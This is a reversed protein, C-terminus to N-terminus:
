KFSTVFHNFWFSSLRIHQRFYNKNFIIVSGDGIRMLNETRDSDLEDAASWWQVYGSSTGLSMCNQWQNSIQLCDEEISLPNLSSEM